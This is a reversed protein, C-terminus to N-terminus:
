TSSWFFFFVRFFDMMLEGVDLSDMLFDTLLVPKDLHPLIKELLVILLQKHTTESLDWLVACNWVKNLNRRMVAYDYDPHDAGGCLYQPPENADVALPIAGLLDLYNQIYIDSSPKGKPTLGPLLKWAYFLVDAYASYEKFRMILHHNLKDSSLLRLLINRFRNTPFYNADTTNEIPNKGEQSLLHMATVLAQSSESPKDLNFCQLISKM